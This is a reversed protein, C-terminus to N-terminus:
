VVLISRRKPGLIFPILAAGGLQHISSVWVDHLPSTDSLFSPFHGTEVRVDQCWRGRGAFMSIRDVSILGGMSDLPTGCRSFPPGHPSLARAAGRANM